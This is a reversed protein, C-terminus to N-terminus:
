TKPQEAEVTPPLSGAGQPWITVTLQSILALVLICVYIYARHGVLFVLLDDRPIGTAQLVAFWSLERIGLAGPTFALLQGLQAVPAALLLVLFSLHLGFARAILYSRLVMLSIQLITLLYAQGVTRSGIQIGDLQRLRDVKDQPILRGLVPIRGGWAAVRGLFATFWRIVQGFRTAIVFFSVGVLVAALASGVELSVLHGVYLLAPGTMLMMLIYDFLRDLLTSYLAMGLSSGGGARLALPRGAFDGVGRPAFLSILRGIINYYYVMRLPLVPQRTLASVLLRWRLSGTLTVGGIALLTALLYVPDGHAVRSLAETGGLYLIIAFIVVGSLGLATRAIRKWNM